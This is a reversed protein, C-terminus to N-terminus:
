AKVLVRTSIISNSNFALADDNLICFCKAKKANIIPANLILTPTISKITQKKQVKTASVDTKQM